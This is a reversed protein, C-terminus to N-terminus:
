VVLLGAEAYLDDPTLTPRTGDYAAIARRQASKAQIEDAPSQVHVRSM